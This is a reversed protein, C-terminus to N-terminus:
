DQPLVLAVFTAMIASFALNSAITWNLRDGGRAPNVATDALTHFVTGTATGALVMLPRGVGGMWCSMIVATVIFHAGLQLHERPLRMM